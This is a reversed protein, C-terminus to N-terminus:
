RGLVKYAEEWGLGFDDIEKFVKYAEERQESETASVAAQHGRLTSAYEEKSVSGDQFGKKVYNLAEVHGQNAAIIWHRLANKKNGDRAELLGLTWRALPHGGIAAKELLQRAKKEDREVGNGEAYLTSLTCLAEVSGLEVAKTLKEFAGGYDGKHLCKTGQERLAVPDNAEARKVEDEEFAENPRMISTRCFACTPEMWNNGSTMSAYVCGKCVMKSCCQSVTSKTEDIPLPVFCIPCDGRHSGEPQKFLIEDYLEAARKKCEKKHQPWHDKQCKVSCYKVLYCSTCKKLKIDDGAKTGCSACCQMMTDDSKEEDATSM